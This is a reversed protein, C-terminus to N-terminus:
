FTAALGSRVPNSLVYAVCRFVDNAAPVVRSFFRDDFVRGRRRPCLVGNIWRALRGFLVRRGADRAGVDMAGRKAFESNSEATVEPALGFGVRAM